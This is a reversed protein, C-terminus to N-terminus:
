LNKVYKRCRKEKGEKLSGNKRVEEEGARRGRRGECEGCSGGNGAALLKGGGAYCAELVHYAEKIAGAIPVLVPYRGTLEQIRETGEM